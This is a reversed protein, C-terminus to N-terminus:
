SFYGYWNVLAASVNQFLEKAYFILVSLLVYPALPINEESKKKIIWLVAFVVILMFLILLWEVTEYYTFYLECVCLLKVDGAGISSCRCYLIILLLWLFVDKTLIELLEQKGPGGMLFVAVGFCIKNILLLFIIKNEIKRSRFDTRCCCFLLVTFIIKEALNVGTVM